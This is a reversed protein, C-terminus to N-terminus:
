PPTPTQEPSPTQDPAPTDAIRAQSQRLGEPVLALLQAELVHFGSARCGEAMMAVAEQIKRLNTEATETRRVLDESTNGVMEAVKLRLDMVEPDGYDCQGDHSDRLRCALKNACMKHRGM